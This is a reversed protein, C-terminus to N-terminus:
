CELLKKSIDLFDIINSKSNKTIAKLMVPEESFIGKDSSPMNIRFKKYESYDKFM